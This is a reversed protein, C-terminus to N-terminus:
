WTLGGSVELVHGNVYASEAGALYVAARAVETGLGPRGAALRDRYRNWVAEHGILARGMGEDIIGPALCNVAIGRPALEAAAVRTFAAVAAKTAAYAAAGPVVLDALASSLTIIRGGGAKELHPVGARVTHFTGSLNTQVTEAWRAPDLAAVPGPHNVGANAVVINIEGFRDAAAAFLAEVADPSRVDVPHYAARDGLGGTPDEAARGGVVVSAGEALFEEAICRGLGRAGGTIVVVQGALRM